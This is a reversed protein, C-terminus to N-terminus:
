IEKKQLLETIEEVSEVIDKRYFAKIGKAFDIASGGGIALIAQPTTQQLMILGEHLSEQTPYTVSEKVWVVKCQAQLKRVFEQLGYRKVASESAVLMMTKQIEAENTFQYNVKRFDDIEMKEM